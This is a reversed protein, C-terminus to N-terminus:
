QDSGFPSAARHATYECSCSALRYLHYTRRCSAVPHNDHGATTAIVAWPSLRRNTPRDNSSMDAEVAVRRQHGQHDYWSQALHSSYSADDRAAPVTLRLMAFFRVERRGCCWWRRRQRAREGGGCIVYLVEARKAVREGRDSSGPWCSLAVALDSRWRRSVM